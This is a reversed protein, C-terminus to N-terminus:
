RIGSECSASFATDEGDTVTFEVDCSPLVRGSSVRYTGAPLTAYFTGNVVDAMTVVGGEVPELRVDGEYPSTPCPKDFVTEYPCSPALTLKGTVTGEGSCPRFTCAREGDRGVGTGDACLRADAACIPTEPEASKPCPFFECGKSADRGVASGDPCIKADMTCFVIGGADPRKGADPFKAFRAILYVVGVGVLAVVILGFILKKM